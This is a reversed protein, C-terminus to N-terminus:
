GLPEVGGEPAWLEAGIRQREVAALLRAAHAAGIGALDQEGADGPGVPRDLDSEPQQPRLEEGAPANAGDGARFRAVVRHGVVVARDPRVVIRQNREPERAAAEIARDLAHELAQEIRRGVHLHPAQRFQEAAELAAAPAPGRVIRDGARRLRPRAGGRERQDLRREPELEIRGRVLDPQAVRVQGREQVLHHQAIKLELLRADVELHAAVGVVYRHLDQLPAPLELDRDDVASRGVPPPTRPEGESPDGSDERASPLVVSPMPASLAFIAVAVLITRRAAPADARCTDASIQTSPAPMAPTEAASSAARRPRLTASTSASGASPPCSTLEIM